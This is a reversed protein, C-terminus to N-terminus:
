EGKKYDGCPLQVCFRNGTANSEAWIRGGHERAIARAIALGLGFSGTRSRATDRRYFRDFIRELEERPIPEGPNSVTLLCQNRGTRRLEVAVIGPASYKGANELLIDVLQRLYQESGHLSIGEEVRADLYLEREFLVPEFPLMAESLLKSLDLQAFSKRVQGNEARSLELLGEVLNRMQRTMTLINEAYREQGEEGASQILEANSMIVTLPTKLEHSADSVFQKQQQWAREVPRVAWRALLLSIGFFALLSGFGVLLSTNVQARLVAKQVSTDVFILHQAAPESVLRYEVGYEPLYGEQESTNRVAQILAQVLEGDSLDFRANGSVTVDGFVGIRLVFWPLQVQRLANDWGMPSRVNQTLTQMTAVSQEELDRKTFHYLMGLIVLLMAAVIVMNIMVFKWRLKKLM